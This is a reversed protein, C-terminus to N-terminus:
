GNDPHGCHTNLFRIVDEKNMYLHLERVEDGQKPNAGSESFAKKAERKSIYYTYGGHEDGQHRSPVQYIKM